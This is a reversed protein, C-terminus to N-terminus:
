EVKAKKSAAKATKKTTEAAKPAKAKKAVAQDQPAAQAGAQGTSKKDNLVTFARAIDKKLKRYVSTDKAEATQGKFRARFLDEKWQKIRGHLEDATCNRLEKAEM